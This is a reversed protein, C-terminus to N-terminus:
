GSASGLEWSLLSVCNADIGAHQFQLLDLFEAMFM